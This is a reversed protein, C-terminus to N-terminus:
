RTAIPVCFVYCGRCFRVLLASFSPLPIRRMGETAGARGQHDAECEAALEGGAGARATLDPHLALWHRDFIHAPFLERSGISLPLDPSFELVPLDGEWRSASQGPAREKGPYGTELLSSRTKRAPSTRTPARLGATM